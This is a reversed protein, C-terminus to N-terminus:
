LPNYAYHATVVWYYLCTTLSPSLSLSLSPSLSLSLSLSVKYGKQLLLEALYSGDKLSPLFFSFSPLPLSLPLPFLPSPSSLHSIILSPAVCSYVYM